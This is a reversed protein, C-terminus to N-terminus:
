LMQLDFMFPPHISRKWGPSIEPPYGHKLDTRQRNQAASSRGDGRVFEQVGQGKTNVIPVVGRHGFPM